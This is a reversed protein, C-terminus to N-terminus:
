DEIGQKRVLSKEVEGDKGFWFERLREGLEGVVVEM